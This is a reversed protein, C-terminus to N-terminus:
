TVCFFAGAMTTSWRRSAEGRRRTGTLTADVLLLTGYTRVAPVANGSVLGRISINQGENDFGFQRQGRLTINEFTQSNVAHATAIGRASVRGGRM